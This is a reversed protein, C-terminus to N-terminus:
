TVNIQTRLWMSVGAVAEEPWIMRLHLSLEPDNAVYHNALDVLFRDGSLLCCGLLYQENFFQDLSGDPYDSPWYIDHFHVIVSSRLAPLIELMVVTVDSNQFACHSSDIFLIDGAALESFLTHEADELPSRVVEDCLVDVSSRPEPDISIIRTRLGHDTIARRAFRTSYGSGIEIYLSPNLTVLKAYLAAGDLKPMWDSEWFDIKKLDDAFELIRALEARFHDRRSDLLAKMQPHPHDRTYRPRFRVPYQLHLYSVPRGGPPGAPGIGLAAKLRTRPYLKKFM